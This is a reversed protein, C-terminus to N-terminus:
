EIVRNARALVPLRETRADAWREVLVYSSNEKWGLAAMGEKFAAAFHADERPSGSHLWGITIPAQKSQSFAGATWALAPWAGAAIIFRRRTLRCADDAGVRCRLGARIHGAKRGM